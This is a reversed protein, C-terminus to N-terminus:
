PRVAPEYTSSTASWVPARREVWATPGEISDPEGMLLRHHVTEAEETEGLGTSAWLLAKTLAVSAPACNVAIDRAVDVATPLVEAAPLARSALGM